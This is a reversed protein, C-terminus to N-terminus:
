WLEITQLVKAGIDELTMEGQIYKEAWEKDCYWTGVTQGNTDGIVGILEDIDWGKMKAGLFTGVVSGIEGAVGKEDYAHSIYAVIVVKNGGNDRGNAVRISSVDIGQRILTTKMLSIWMEDDNPDLTSTTTPLPKEEEASNSTLTNTTTTSIAENNNEPEPSLLIMLFLLFVIGLAIWRKKM